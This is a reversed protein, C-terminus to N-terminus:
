GCLRLQLVHEMVDPAEPDKDSLHFAVQHYKLLEKSIHGAEQTPHWKGLYKQVMKNWLQPVVLQPLQEVPLPYFSAFTYVDQSM